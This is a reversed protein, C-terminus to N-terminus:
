AVFLAGVIVPPIFTVPFTLRVPLTTGDTSTVYSKPVESLRKLSKYKLPFVITKPPVVRELEFSPPEKLTPSLEPFVLFTRYM